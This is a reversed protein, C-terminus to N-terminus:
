VWLQNGFGFLSFSWGSVFILPVCFWHAGEKDNTNVVFIHRRCWAMDNQTTASEVIRMCTFLRKIYLVALTGCPEDIEMHCLEQNLWCLIDKDLLWDGAGFFTVKSPITRRTRRKSTPPDVSCASPLVKKGKVKLPPM